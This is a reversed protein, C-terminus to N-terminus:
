DGAADLADEIASRRSPPGQNGPPAGAPSGTVSSAARRSKGARRQAEGSAKARERQSVIKEIDPTLKCAQTYAQDLSLDIGRRSALEILDAMQDRVDGFFEKGVSFTSVEESARADRAQEAKQAQSQLAHMIQDIRPDAPPQMQRHAAAAPGSVLLHDLMAVDVGHNKIIDCAVQAKQMASGSRLMGATAFLNSAAQLPNSGESAIMEQYPSYVKHFGEALQRAQATQQFAAQMDSERKQVEQKVELPTNAWAERASPRWSQPPQDVQEANPQQPQVGAEPEAEAGEPRAFRGHEDRARGEAAPVPEETDETVEAEETAESANLQEEIIERTSPEPAEVELELEEEEM